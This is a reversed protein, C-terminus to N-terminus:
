EMTALINRGTTEESSVSGGIEHQLEVGEAISTSRIIRMSLGFIDHKKTFLNQESIRRADGVM